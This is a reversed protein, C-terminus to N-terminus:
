KQGPIPPAGQIVVDTNDEIFRFYSTLRTFVYEGGAACGAQGFSAIGILVDAIPEPPEENNMITIVVPGGADGQFYTNNFPFFNFLFRTNM